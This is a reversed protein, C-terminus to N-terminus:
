IRRMNRRDRASEDHYNQGDGPSAIHNIADRLMVRCRVAERLRSRLRTAECLIAEGQKTDHSDRNTM